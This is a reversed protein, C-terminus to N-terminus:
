SINQLKYTRTKSQPESTRITNQPRLIIKFQTKDSESQESRVLRIESHVILTILNHIFYDISKIFLIWEYAMSLGNNNEPPTKEEAAM